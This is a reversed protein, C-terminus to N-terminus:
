ELYKYLDYLTWGKDVTVFLLENNIQVTTPKRFDSLQPEMSLPKRRKAFVRYYELIAEEVNNVYAKVGNNQGQRKKLFDLQKMKNENGEDIARQLKELVLDCRKREKKGHDTFKSFLVNNGSFHILANIVAGGITFLVLAM